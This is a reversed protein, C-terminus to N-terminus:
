HSSPQRRHDAEVHRPIKSWSPRDVAHSGTTFKHKFLQISSLWTQLHHSDFMHRGKRTIDKNIYKKIRLKHREKLQSIPDPTLEFPVRAVTCATTPVTLNFFFVGERLDEADSKAGLSPCVVWAPPELSISTSPLYQQLLLEIKSKSQSKM